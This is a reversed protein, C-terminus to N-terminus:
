RLLEPLKTVIWISRDLTDQLVDWTPPEGASARGVLLYLFTVSMLRFASLSVTEALGWGKLLMRRAADLQTLL